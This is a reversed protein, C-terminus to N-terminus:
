ITDGLNHRYRRLKNGENRNKITWLIQCVMILNVKCVYVYIRNSGLNFFVKLPDRSILVDFRVDEAQSENDEKPYMLIM